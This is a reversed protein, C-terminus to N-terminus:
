FKLIISGKTRGPARWVPTEAKRACNEFTWCLVTHQVYFFPELAPNLQIELRESVQGFFHSIISHEKNAGM